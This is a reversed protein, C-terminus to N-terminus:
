RKNKTKKLITDVIGFSYVIPDIFLEVLLPIKKHKQPTPLVQEIKPSDPRTESVAKNYSISNTVYALDDSDALFFRKNIPGLSFFFPHNKPNVLTHLLNSLEFKTADLFIINNPSENQILGLSNPKNLFDGNLHPFSSEDVTYLQSKFPPKPNLGNQNVVEDFIKFLINNNLFIPLVHLVESFSYVSYPFYAGIFDWFPRGTYDTFKAVRCLILLTGNEIPVFYCFNFHAGVAESQYNLIDKKSLSPYSSYLGDVIINRVNNIETPSLSDPIIHFDWDDRSTKTFVFIEYKM